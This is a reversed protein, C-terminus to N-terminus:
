RQPRPLSARRRLLDGTDSRYVITMVRRNQAACMASDCIAVPARRGRGFVTIRDASVGEEILRGRVQEARHLSLVLNADQAGNDHSHGEIRVLLDPNKKLWQAQRRLVSRAKGGIQKSNAAFFVRDGVNMLLKRQMPADPQVLRPAIAARSVTRPTSPRVSRQKVVPPLSRQKPSIRAERNFRRPREDSKRYITALYRQAKLAYDSNPHEDVLREFIRRATRYDQSDFEYQGEDFLAEADDNSQSATRRYRVPAISSARLDSSSAYHAHPAALPTAFAFCTGAMLITISSCFLGGFARVSSVLAIM